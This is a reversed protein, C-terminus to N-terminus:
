HTFLARVKRGSDSKPNQSGIGENATENNWLSAPSYAVFIHSCGLTASLARVTAVTTDDFVIDRPCAKEFSRVFARVIKDRIPYDAARFEDVRENLAIIQEDTLAM